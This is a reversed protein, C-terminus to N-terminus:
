RAGEFGLLTNVANLGIEDVMYGGEMVFLTPLGAGALREGLRLFDESRLRFSRFLM